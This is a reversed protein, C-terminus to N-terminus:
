AISENRQNNQNDDLTIFGAAPQGSSTVDSGQGNAVDGGSLDNLSHGNTEDRPPENSGASLSNSTNSSSSTISIVDGRDKEVPPPVPPPSSPLAPPPPAAPKKVPLPPAPVERRPYGNPEIEPAAPLPPTAGESHAVVSNTKRMTRKPLAPRDPDPPLDVYSSGHRHNRDLTNFTRPPLPPAPSLPEAIPIGNNEKTPSPSYFNPSSSQHQMQHPHHHNRPISRSRHLLAARSASGNEPTVPSQFIATPRPPPTNAPSMGDVVSLDLSSYGTSRPRYPIPPPPAPSSREPLIPPERLTCDLPVSYIDEENRPISPAIGNPLTELLPGNYHGDYSRDVPIPPLPQNIISPRKNPLLVDIQGCEAIYSSAELVNHRMLTFRDVLRRHLPQINAPVLRAHLSLGGELIRVKQLILQKLRKLHHLHDPHLHIYRPNFFADQYKAVGGNVAAEIVGQLRMSLPSIPKTPEATYSTIIKQLERNMNEVTECAHELPSVETVRKQVVEFWRLILVPTFSTGKRATCPLM